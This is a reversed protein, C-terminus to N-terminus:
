CPHAGSGEVRKRGNQSRLGWLGLVCCASIFPITHVRLQFLEPSLVFCEPALLHLAFRVSRLQGRRRTRPRPLINFTTPRGPDEGVPSECGGRSNEWHALSAAWLPPARPFFDDGNEFKSSGLAVSFDINDSRGYGEGAHGPCLQLRAKTMSHSLPALYVSVRHEVNGDTPSSPGRRLACYALRALM